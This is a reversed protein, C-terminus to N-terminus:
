KWLHTQLFLMVIPLLISVFIQFMMKTEFPFLRIEGLKNKEILLMQLVDKDNSTPSRKYNNLLEQYEHEHAILASFKEKEIKNKIVFLPGLFSLILAAMIIAFILYGLFASYNSKDLTEFILPFLLSSSSAGLANAVALSGLPKLGMFLDPHFPAPEFPTTDVVERVIKNFAVACAMGYGGVFATFLFFAWGWAQLLVSKYGSIFTAYMIPLTIAITIASVIYYSNNNYYSYIRARVAEVKEKSGETTPIIGQIQDFVDQIRHQGYYLMAFTLSTFLMALWMGRSTDALQGESFLLVIGVAVLPVPILFMGLWDNRTIKCSWYLLWYPLALKKEPFEKPLLM